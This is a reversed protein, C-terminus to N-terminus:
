CMFFVKGLPFQKQRRRQEFPLGSSNKFKFIAATSEGAETAVGYGLELREPSTRVGAELAHIHQTSQRLADVESQKKVEPVDDKHFDFEEELALSPACGLKRSRDHDQNVPLAARHSWYDRYSGGVGCNDFRDM